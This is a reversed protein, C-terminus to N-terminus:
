LSGIWNAYLGPQEVADVCVEGGFRLDRIACAALGRGDDGLYEIAHPETQMVYAQDQGVGRVFLPKKTADLPTLTIGDDTQGSVFFRGRPDLTFPAAKYSYPLTAIEAGSDISFVHV